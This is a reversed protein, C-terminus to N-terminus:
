EGLNRPVAYQGSESGMSSDPRLREFNGDEERKKMDRKAAGSQSCLACYENLSSQRLGKGCLRCQRVEKDRGLTCDDCWWEEGVKRAARAQRGREFCPKCLHEQINPM